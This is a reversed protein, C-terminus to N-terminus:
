VTPGAVSFARCRHNNLRYRPVALLQCNASRLHQRIDVGAAPVCYDSLYPPARGNLCRHVTVALKFFVRDPVDLWHLEDHLINYHTNTNTHVIVKSCFSRQGRYKALHSVKLRSLDFISTLTMPWLELDCSFVNMKHSVTFLVRPFAVDCPWISHMFM